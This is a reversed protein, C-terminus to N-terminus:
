RELWRSLDPRLLEKAEPDNMHERTVLRVGTDIRKEVPTGHIHSVITKVGLYGMNVPDQLV